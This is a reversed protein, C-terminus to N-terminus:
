RRSESDTTKHFDSTGRRGLRSTLKRACSNLCGKLTSVTDMPAVDATGAEDLMAIMDVLVEDFEMVDDGVPGVDLKSGDDLPLVQITPTTTPGRTPIAIPAANIHNQRRLRL